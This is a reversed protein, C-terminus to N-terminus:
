YSQLVGTDEWDQVTPGATKVLVRQDQSLLVVLGPWGPYTLALICPHTVCDVYSDSSLSHSVSGFWRCSSHPLQGLPQADERGKWLFFSRNNELHSCQWHLTPCSLLDAAFLGDVGAFLGGGGSQYHYLSAELHEESSSLKDRKVECLHAPVFVERQAVLTGWSLSFWSGGDGAQSVRPQNRSVPRSMLNSRIIYFLLHRIGLLSNVPQVHPYLKFKYRMFSRHHIM